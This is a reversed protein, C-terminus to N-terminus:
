PLSPNHPSVSLVKWTFDRGIKSFCWQKINFVWFRNTENNQSEPESNQWKIKATGNLQLMNGSEFDWFVLGTDANIEINGLTNFMNNGKYDPIKLTKEDIFKVFGSNGGRHSIDLQGNPNSSGIFFTDASNIINKHTDQLMEGMMINPNNNNWPTSQIIKREQIYKSCNPYSEIVKIEINEEKIASIIGNIRIRRRTAFDIILLGIQIKNELSLWFINNADIDVKGKDICVTKNNPSYIFGKDGTLIYSWTSQNQDAISAIIYEQYLIIPLAEPMIRNDIMQGHFSAQKTEGALKQIRKEGKHFKRSM